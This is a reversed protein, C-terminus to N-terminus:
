LRKLVLGPAPPSKLHSPRSSLQRSSCLRLTRWHGIRTSSLPSVLHRTVLLTSPPIFQSGYRHLAVNSVTFITGPQATIGLFWPPFALEGFHNESQTSRWTQARRTHAVTFGNKERLSRIIIDQYSVSFSDASFSRSRICPVYM